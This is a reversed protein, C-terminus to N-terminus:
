IRSFGFSKTLGLCEGLHHDATMEKDKGNQAYFICKISCSREVVEGSRESVEGPGRCTNEIVKGSGELFLEFRRRYIDLVEANKCNM